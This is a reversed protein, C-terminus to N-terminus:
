VNSKEAFGVNANLVVLDGDKFVRTANGTGVICPIGFERSVIAAHSLIGGEDTIIGGAKRCAIVLDPRTMETVIIQGDKMKRIKNHNEDPRLYSFVVVEGEVVGTSAPRGTVKRVNEEKPSLYYDYYTKAERGELSSIEGGTMVKLFAKEREKLKGQPVKRGELLLDDIEKADHKRLDSKSIGFRRKFEVLYLENYYLSLMWSFRMKLREEGLISLVEIAHIVDQPPNLVRLLGEKESIDSNQTKYVVSKILKRDISANESKISQSFTKFLQSNKEEFSFKHKPTTLKSFMASDNGSIKKSLFNHVVDEVLECREPQTMSYCTFLTSLDSGTKSYLDALEKSTLKTLYVDSFGNVSKNLTERADRINETLELFRNKDALLNYGEAKIRDLDKLELYYSTTFETGFTAADLIGYGFKKKAKDGYNHLIPELDYYNHNEEVWMLQYKPDDKLM